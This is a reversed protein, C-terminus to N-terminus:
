GRKKYELPYFKFPEEDPLMAICQGIKLSSIDWDEIVEGIELSDQVGKSTNSSIYSYMRKNRGYRGQIVNRSNNDLLRFAFVSGFGSILSQALAHGYRHEVQGINQLGAIIRVGLSRGFNLANDMYNLRPILPFEDLVFFVRGNKGGNSSRGLVEKMSIDLLLTYIDELIYGASLDYELFVAKGGKEQIARRISFDGAQEFSGSFIKYVTQYLHVLFSQTQSPNEKKIYMRVWKLNDHKVLLNRLTVDSAKRLFEVLTAHNMMPEGNEIDKIQASLIAAFLDRAGLAFIPATSKEIDERFIGTAIEKILEERKEPHTMMIEEYINWYVGGLPQEIENSIVMDGDKYFEEYYDGKADFFIFMDDENANARLGEIIHYLINSKGSGIAGIALIHREILKNHLAVGSNNAGLIGFTGGKGTGIIENNLETIVSGDIIKKNIFSM